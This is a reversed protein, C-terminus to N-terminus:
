EFIIKSDEDDKMIEIVTDVTDKIQDSHAIVFVVRFYRKLSLLFRNCAETNTDDLASFGEDIIFLDSKPLTGVNIMAVRISMAAIFKEMGCGLEIVRRRDGYNLYIELTDSDEEIELEVTFNVIGKLIESIENNIVPLQSRLITLPIAKKSLAQIVLEYARIRKLEKARMEKDLLTKELTTETRGLERSLENKENNLTKSKAICTELKTKLAVLEANKDNKYAVELEALKLIETTKNRKIADLKTELKVIDVRHESLKTTINNKLQKLKEIKQISDRVNEKKLEDVQETITKVKDVIESVIKKQEEIKEADHKADKIFVCGGFENVGGCPVDQLVQLSHTYRDLTSAEETKSREAIKVDTESKVLKDLKEQLKKIDNLQLTADIKVIKDNFDTINKNIDGIKTVIEKEKFTLQDVISQQTDVQKSTVVVVEGFQAVSVRLDAIKEDIKTVDVEKNSIEQKAHILNDNLTAIETEWDCDRLAKITNKATNLDSKCLDHIKNIIDLEFFRSVIKHRNTSGQKIFRDADGQVCVSTMMFDDATGLMSRIVKETDIRQEECANEAVIENVKFLKLKANAFTRGKKEYKEINREIVYDVGNVDVIMRTDSFTKRENPILLNVLGDRDTTNFLSYITTGIISSKGSGNPGFIGCLGSLKEFNIINGDGYQFMNNFSLWKPSWKVNRQTISTDDTVQQLYGRLLERMTVFEDESMDTNQHYDSVLKILVSSNKLDTKSITDNGICVSNTDVVNESKFTLESTIRKLQSQLELVDSHSMFGDSKVRVRCDKRVVQAVTDEVNGMWQITLFPKPNPLECYTVSWEGKNEIDWLLYGHKLTEAYTNQLFSGPYGVYPRIDGSLTKREGLYQHMHLDGLMTVDFDNFFEVDLGTDVKWDTTEMQAGNVPGHYTAINVENQVPKVVDWNQEDFLSFSCLNYGPSLQYVGSDRYMKINDDNLLNVISTIIDKRSKNMQNFDHNGLTIHVKVCKDPTCCKITLLKKFIWSIFDVVEPTIGQTKTHFTDGAILIHDVGGRNNADIVLAEVVEKLEDHRTLGRVHVDAIHCIRM